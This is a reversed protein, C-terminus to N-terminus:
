INRMVKRMSEMHVIWWQPDLREWAKIEVEKVAEKGEAWLERSKLAWKILNLRCSYDLSTEKVDTIEIIDDVERKSCLM